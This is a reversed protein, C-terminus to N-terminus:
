IVGENLLWEKFVRVKYAKATDPAHVVYYSQERKITHTLPQILRGSKLEQEVFFMPLIAVGMGELAAEIIMFFHEFNGSITPQIDQLGVSKFYEYWAEPRTSHNLLSHNLLDSPQNIQHRSVLKPSCFVSVYENMLLTAETKPWHGLGYRVGIDFPENHFNVLRESCTVDVLIDPYQAQFRHLRPVLWRQAFTPLVSVRLKHSGQTVRLKQTVEAIKELAESIESFYLTGAETLSLARGNRHFLTVGLEVELSDIMRSVASQTVCLEEAAKTFSLFRAAAEFTRIAKLSPLKRYSM